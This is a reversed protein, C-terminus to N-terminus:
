EEEFDSDSDNRNQQKLFECLNFAVAEDSLENFFEEGDCDTVTSIKAM